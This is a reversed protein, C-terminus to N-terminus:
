YKSAYKAYDLFDNKDFIEKESRIVRLIVSYMGAEFWECYCVELHNRLSKYKEEDSNAFNTLKTILELKNM